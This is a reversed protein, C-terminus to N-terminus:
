QITIYRIIYPKGRFNNKAITKYFYDTKISVFLDLNALFSFESGPLMNRTQELGFDKCLQLIRKPFM